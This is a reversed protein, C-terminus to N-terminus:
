RVRVSASMRETSVRANKSSSSGASIASREASAISPARSSPTSGNVNTVGDPVHVSASSPELRVRALAAVVADRADLEGVGVDGIDDVVELRRHREQGAPVSRIARPLRPLKRSQHTTSRESISPRGTCVRPATVNSSGRRIAARGARARERGVVIVGVDGREEGLGPEQVQAAPEVGLQHM